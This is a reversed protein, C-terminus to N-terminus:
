ERHQEIDGSGIVRTKVRPSGKYTIDGSGMVTANLTTAASVEVDGSGKINVNVDDAALEYCSVDGSGKLDVNLKATRGQVTVDASGKLAIALTENDLGTVTVGGSGSVEVAAINAASGTIIVPKKSSFSRKATIQLKGDKITTEILPLINEDAEITLPGPKGITITVNAAIELRLTDFAAIDRTEKAVQGNGVVQGKDEAIAPGVMALSLVIGMVRKM